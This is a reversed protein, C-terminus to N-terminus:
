GAEAGVGHAALLAILEGLEARYAKWRGIADANIPRRAEVASATAIADANAHAEMCQPEWELDCFELLRRVPQEGRVVIDEYHVDLIRGPFREHWFAMLRDFELYYKGTEILDFSYDYFSHRGEATFLQRYNSLCTDLPHRRVCVIRASPLAQAIWGIGLFNHPLKDIFRRSSGTAAGLSGTYARGLGQWNLGDRRSFTAPDLVKNVNSGSFHRLAVLFNQLEGASQVQSHRSLMREVLTTGTRPMGVVFIPEADAFGSYGEDAASWTNRIAAFIRADDDFSYPRQKRAEGKAASLHVFAASFEATDELEKALAMGLFVQAGSIDAHDHLLARLEAIHNDDATQTALQSRQLYAPWYDPRLRICVDLEDAAAEFEGFQILAMAHNYRAKADAPSVAVLRRFAERASAMAKVRHFVLGLALLTDHDGPDMALVADALETAERNMHVLSYLRALEARYAPKDPALAVARQVRGIAAQIDGARAAAVGSAFWAAPESSTGQAMEGGVNMKQM